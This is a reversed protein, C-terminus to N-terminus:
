SSVLRRSTSRSVLPSQVTSTATIVVMPNSSFLQVESTNQLRGSDGSPLRMYSTSPSECYWSSGINSAQGGGNRYELVARYVFPILGEM